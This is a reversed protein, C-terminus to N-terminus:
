TTERERRHASSACVDLLYQLRAPLLQPELTPEIGCNCRGASLFCDLLDDAPSEDHATQLHVFKGCYCQVVPAMSLPASCVPCLEDRYVAPAAGPTAKWAHVVVWEREGVSLISGASLTTLSLPPSRDDLTVAPHCCLFSCNSESDARPFHLLGLLTQGAAPETLGAGDPAVHRASLNGQSDTLLRVSYPHDGGFELRLISWDADVHLHNVLLFLLYKM